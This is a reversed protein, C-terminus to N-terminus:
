RHGDFYRHLGERAARSRDGRHSNAAGYIKGANAVPDTGSTSCPTWRGPSTRRTHVREWAGLVNAIDRGFSVLQGTHPDKYNPNAARAWSDKYAVHGEVWGAADAGLVTGEGPDIATGAAAGALLGLGEMLAATRGHRAEVDHLYRYEQQVTKLPVNM